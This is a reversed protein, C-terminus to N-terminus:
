NAVTVADMVNVVEGRAPLPTKLTLGKEGRKTLFRCQMLFWFFNWRQDDSWFWTWCGREGDKLCSSSEGVDLSSLSFCSCQHSHNDVWKLYSYSACWTLILSCFQIALSIILSETGGTEGTGGTEETEGKSIIIYMMLYYVTHSSRREMWRKQLPVCLTCWSLHHSRVKTNLEPPCFHGPHTTDINHHRTDQDAHLQDAYRVYWAYWQDACWMM